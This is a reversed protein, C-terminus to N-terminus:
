TRDRVSATPSAMDHDHSEHHHADEGSSRTHSHGAGCGGHSGGHRLHMALMAGVLVIWIWNAALFSMM